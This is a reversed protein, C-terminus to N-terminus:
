LDSKILAGRSEIVRKCRDPMEAIRAHVEATTIKSWEDQIVEKYEELSNWLRKRVRNKLINWYAEM